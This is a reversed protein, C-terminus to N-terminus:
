FRLALTLGVRTKPLDPLPRNLRWAYFLDVTFRRDVPLSLGVGGSTLRTTGTSSRVEAHDAFVFPEVAALPDSGFRWGFEAAAAYGRDGASTAPAFARSSRVGGIQYQLIGPLDRASTLQWDARLRLRGGSGFGAGAFASGRFLTPKQRVAQVREDIDNFSVAQTLALSVPGAAYGLTIGLDGAHLRSDSIATADVDTRSLTYQGSASAILSFRLTSAVLLAANVAATNSRGAIGLAAFQGEVIRTRGYAYSAGLRLDGLAASYSGSVSRIGESVLGTAVLRDAGGLLRYTRLSAGVQERGTSEFGNNDAFVDLQVRAPEVLALVIDTQGFARGPAVSARLQADNTRNFRLLAEEIARVDAVRGPEFRVQRGVIGRGADSGGEVRTEGVRGEVLRIRVVGREIQQPPLVARATAIGRAAYLKNVAAVLAQLDAFGVERDLYPRAVAQLADPSLFASDDFDVRNLIFRVDVADSASAAGVPPAVTVTPAGDPRM